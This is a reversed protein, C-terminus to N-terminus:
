RRYCLLAESLLDSFEEAGRDYGEAFGRQYSEDRIRGIIKALAQVDGESMLKQSSQFLMSRIGEAETRDVAITEECSVNKPKGCELVCTIECISCAEGTGPDGCNCALGREDRLAEWETKIRRLNGQLAEVTVATDREATEKAQAYVAAFSKKLTASLKVLERDTSLTM